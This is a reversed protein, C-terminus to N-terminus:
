NFLETDSQTKGMNNYYESPDHDDENVCFGCNYAKLIMQKEEEIKSECLSIVSKMCETIAKEAVLNWDSNHTKITVEIQNLEEILQTLTTKM